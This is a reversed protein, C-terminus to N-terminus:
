ATGMELHKICRLTDSIIKSERQIQEKIEDSNLYAKQEETLLNRDIRNSGVIRSIDAYSINHPDFMIRTGNPRLRLNNMDDQRLAEMSPGLFNLMEETPHMVTHREPDQMHRVRAYINLLVTLNTQTTIGEKTLLPLVENLRGIERCLLQGSSDTEDGYAAGLDVSAFFSRLDNSIMTPNYKFGIQATTNTRKKKRRAQVFYPYLELIAKSLQSAFSMIAARDLFISEGPTQPNPYTLREGNQLSGVDLARRALARPYRSLQTLLQKYEANEIDYPSEDVGNTAPTESNMDGEM